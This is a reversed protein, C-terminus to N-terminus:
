LMVPPATQHVLASAVTMLGWLVLDPIALRWSGRRWGATLEDYNHPTMLLTGITKDNLERTLCEGSKNVANM